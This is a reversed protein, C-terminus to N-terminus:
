YNVETRPVPSYFPVKRYGDIIVDRREPDVPTQKRPGLLDAPNAVQAALNNQYSCGFNAYHKNDVTNALDDPWRGCRDTQARMATYTVRLPSSAEPYATQYSAIAIRSSPVGAKVAVRMLGRAAQTAAVDNAGGSPVMITLVPAARRDYQELYGEFTVQQDKTLGRDGTGVPIDITQNKEAIVIPHNTRYDDPIAGVTISDRNTACGAVLAVAAAALLPRFIRSMDPMCNDGSKTAIRVVQSM